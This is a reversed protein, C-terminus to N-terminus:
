EFLKSLKSAEDDDLAVEDMSALLEIGEVVSSSSQKNCSDVILDEDTTDEEVAPAEDTSEEDGEESDEKKEESEEDDGGGLDVKIEETVMNEDESKKEETAEKEPTEAVEETADKEEESAEKRVKGKSKEVIGSDLSEAIDPTQEKKLTEPTEPLGKHTGDPVQDTELHRKTDCCISKDMGVVDRLLNDVIADSAKKDWFMGESKDTAMVPIVGEMEDTPNEEQVVIIKPQGRGLGRGKCQNMGPEGLLCSEVEESPEAEFDSSVVTKFKEDAMKSLAYSMAMLDRNYPTQSAFVRSLSELRKALAIKDM